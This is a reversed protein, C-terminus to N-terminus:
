IELFFNSGSGPNSGRVEEFKRKLDPLTFKELCLNHKNESLLKIQIILCTNLRSFM